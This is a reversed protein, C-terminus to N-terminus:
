SIPFLLLNRSYHTKHSHCRALLYGENDVAVTTVPKIDPMLYGDNAEALGQGPTPMLYGCENQALHEL